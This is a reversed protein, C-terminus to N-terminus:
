KFNANPILDIGAEQLRTVLALGRDIDDGGTPAIERILRGLRSALVNEMMVTLPEGPTVNRLKM